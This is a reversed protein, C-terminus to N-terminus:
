EVSDDNNLIRYGADYSIENLSASTRFPSLTRVLAIHCAVFSRFTKEHVALTRSLSIVREFVDGADPQHSRDRPTCFACAPVIM